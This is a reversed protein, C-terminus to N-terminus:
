YWKLVCSGWTLGAGFGVLALRQDRALHGQAKMESLAIPISAAATNGYRELNVFTKEMPFQLRQVASEIIRLNAQHPVLLDVDAIDLGAAELSRKVSAGLTRLAFIFVRQGDMTTYHLGQAVTEASAPLRSGGAPIQLVEAETGDTGLDSGLLGYGDPVEGLVAAGAGDGFLISTNADQWDVFKSVTEAGIVLVKKYLGSKILQCGMVLGYVFGSCAALLDFAAAKTAGLGAQVSVASGPSLRDSTSTAVIILNLESAEVGADALAKRAAQLALDSTAEEPAAIHRQRIGCRELIVEAPMQLRQELEKNTVIRQPAYHGLGIIGAGAM